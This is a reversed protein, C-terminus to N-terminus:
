QQPSLSGRQNKAAFDQLWSEDANVLRGGRLNIVLRDVAEYMSRPAQKRNRPDIRKEYARRMLIADVMNTMLETAAKGGTSAQNTVVNFNSERADIAGWNPPNRMEPVSDIIDQVAMESEAALLRLCIAKSDM